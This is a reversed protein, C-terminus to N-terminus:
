KVLHALNCVASDRSRLSPSPVQPDRPAWPSPVALAASSGVGTGRVAAVSGGSFGSVEWHGTMVACSVIFTQQPSRLCHRNQFVWLLLPGKEAKPRPQPPIPLAPAAAARRTLLPLGLLFALSAFPLCASGSGWPGRWRGPKSMSRTNCATISGQRQGWILHPLAPEAAQM